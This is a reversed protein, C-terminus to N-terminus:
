VHRNRKMHKQHYNQHLKKQSYQTKIAPLLSERATTHLSRMTTAERAESCLSQTRPSWYKPSRPELTDAWYNRHVPETAECSSDELVRSWVRTGQIPLCIRLWQVVLSTRWHDNQHDAIKLKHARNLFEGANLVCYSLLKKSVRSRRHTKDMEEKHHGKISLTEGEPYQRHSQRRGM